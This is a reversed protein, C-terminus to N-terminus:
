DVRAFRAGCRDCRMSLVELVAGSSDRILTQEFDHGGFQVCMKPALIREAEALTYLEPESAM